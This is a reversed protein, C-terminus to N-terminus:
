GDVQENGTVYKQKVREKDLNRMKQWSNNQSIIQRVAAMSQAAEVPPLDQRAVTEAESFKGQLGLVLALNQRTRLDARPNEAAKRLVTEAEPLRRSLAYSLGLNSLVGPDDPNLRLASEYLNQATAHDGLQDSVAGQASLVRWDPREPSHSRSLVERAQQLQGVEVLAKGYAALVDMDKPAKLAAAQLVAVAQQRQGIMRLGRAYNMSITKDGPKSDYRRGWEESYARWSETTQPQAISGTVDPGDKKCASLSVAATALLAFLLPRSPWASARSSVAIM